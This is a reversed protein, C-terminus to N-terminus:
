AARRESADDLREVAQRLDNLLGPLAQQLEVPLWVQLESEFTQHIAEIARCCARGRDTITLLTKRRDLISRERLILGDQRMREIAVCLNSESLSVDGALDAQTCSSERRHLAELIAARSESFGAQSYREALLRRVTRSLPIWQALCGFTLSRDFAPM